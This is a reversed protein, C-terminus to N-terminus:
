GWGVVDVILINKIGVDRLKLIVKKYGDVWVSGNWIGYWENVINVIVWDEKGILVEKISIWYNVVVDLLNYDDKGIVDYVEFVVIMKNVNVVNIINKVFNM